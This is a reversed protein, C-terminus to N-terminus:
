RCLRKRPSNSTSSPWSDGSPGKAGPSSRANRLREYMRQATNRRKPPATKDSEMWQEVLPRFEDMLPSVRAQGMRYGPPVAHSLAKAVTKRSHGLERAVDRQSHGDLFVKRRIMEYHNVTLM